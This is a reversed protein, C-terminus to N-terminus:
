CVTLSHWSNVGGDTYEQVGVIGVGTFQSQQAKRVAGWGGGLMGVGTYLPCIASHVQLGQTNVGRTAPGQKTGLPWWSDQDSDTVLRTDQKKLSSSVVRSM